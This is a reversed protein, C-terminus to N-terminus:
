TLASRCRPAAAKGRDTGLSEAKRILRRFWVVSLFGFLVAGSLHLLSLHLGMALEFVFCVLFATFAFVSSASAFALQRISNADAGMALAESM